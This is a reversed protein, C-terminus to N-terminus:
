FRLSLSAVFRTLPPTGAQNGTFATAPGNVNVEPDIGDFDTWTFLERAALSITAGSAGYVFREPITYAASIERLKVFSGDQYHQDIIGQALANGAIEALYTTPFREPYFNAECLGAGLAGVCRLLGNQDFVKHGRKFDVLGYLRLNNFLTVTNGIAGSLKPTPTGHFLFPATACAVPAQGPGGDCLVNTALNTVPDRDASVVRRTYIGNIPRGVV